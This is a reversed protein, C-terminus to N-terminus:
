QFDPGSKKPRYFRKIKKFFANAIIRANKEISDCGDLIIFRKSKRAIKLYYDQIKKHFQIEEHEFRDIIKGRSILRKKIEELKLKFLFTLDPLLGGASIKNISAVIKIPLQRGGAQYATTSDIFRDCLVVRGAELAPKIVRTVHEARDAAFLLLETYGSIGTPPKLILNKIQQGLETGGPERTLINKIKKEDLFKKFIEAHTTKGSTEVGEFTILLGRNQQPKM